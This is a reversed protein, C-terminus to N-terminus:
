KGGEERLAAALKQAVEVLESLSAFPRETIAPRAAVAPEDKQEGRASEEQMSQEGQSEWWKRAKDYLQKDKKKYKGGRSEVWKQYEDESKLSGDDRWFDAHLREPAELNRPLEPQQSEAPVPQVADDEGLEARVALIGEDHLADNATGFGSSTKAGFGYETMMARIGKAIFQIDEAVQRCTEGKDEGIRDFPVYLLTFNGDVEPKAPVCEMLIPNKGVRKERDHPNIIELATQTFFTPYLYLRGAGGTDGERVEGFIRQIQVDDKKYGQWLAHRLSGKWASPRVMPWRFVKERVIPNDIIHFDNDDRSLYPKQLTFIFHIFFSFLPLQILDPLFKFLDLWEHHAVGPLKQQWSTRFSDADAIKTAKLYNFILSSSVGKSNLLNNRVKKTRDEITKRKNKDGENQEEKECDSLENLISLNQHIQRAFNEWLKNERTM